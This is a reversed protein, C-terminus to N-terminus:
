GGMMVDVEGGRGNVMREMRGNKSDLSDRIDLMKLDRVVSVVTAIEHIQLPTGGYLWPIELFLLNPWVFSGLSAANM